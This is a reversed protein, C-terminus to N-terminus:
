RSSKPHAFHLSQDCGQSLAQDSFRIQGIRKWARDTEADAVLIDFRLGDQYHRLNLENRFDDEDVRTETAARLALWHPARVKRADKVGLSAIQDIRRYGPNSDAAKFTNAIKLLTRISLISSAHTTIAPENTKITDLFYQAETGGLDDITFFNATEYNNPDRPDKTPFIKGAIGFSRWSGYRPKGMAESARAIILGRSGPAFYGTYPNSETIAWTGAFCIGIPHVLKQFRPLVDRNDNLTRDVSRALRDVGNEYFTSLSVVHEPLAEYPGAKTARWTGAFTGAQAAIASSLVLFGLGFNLIVINLSKMSDGKIKLRGM